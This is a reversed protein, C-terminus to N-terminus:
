LIGLKKFWDYMVPELGPSSRWEEEPLTGSRYRETKESLRKLTAVDAWVYSKTEDASPVVEGSVGEAKYLKWYHWTGGERRCPNEMRGEAALGFREATLGVEEALEDSAAKEYTGHVDVHGAPVAMGFPPRARQILLLKNDRWVLIGVSTHDCTKSM